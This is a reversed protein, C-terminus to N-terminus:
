FHLKLQHAFSLWLQALNLFFFFSSSFQINCTRAVQSGKSWHLSHDKNFGQFIGRKQALHSFHPQVIAIPCALNTAVMTLHLGEKKKGVHDALTELTARGDITWFLITLAPSSQQFDQINSMQVIFKGSGQPITDKKVTERRKQFLNWETCLDTSEFNLLFSVPHM